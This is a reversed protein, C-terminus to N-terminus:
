ETVEKIRPLEHEPAFSALRVRWGPDTAWFGTILRVLRVARRLNPPWPLPDPRLWAAINLTLPIALAHAAYRDAAAEMVRLQNSGTAAAILGAPIGILHWVSLGGALIATIPLAILAVALNLHRVLSTRARRTQDAHALHGLEHGLVWRQVPEPADVLEPHVHLHPDYDDHIRAYGLTDTDIHIPIPEFSGADCLDAWLAAFRALRHPDPIVDTRSIDDTM